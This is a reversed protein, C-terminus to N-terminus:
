FHIVQKTKAYFVAGTQTHIATKTLTLNTTPLYEYIGPPTVAFTSHRCSAMVAFGGTRRVVEFVSSLNSTQLRISADLWFAAPHDKLAELIAFAKVAQYHWKVPTPTSLHSTVPIKSFNFPRLEVNCWRRIEAEQNSTLGWNFYLLKNNPFHEQVSAVADKSELMHNASVGMVFVFKDFVESTVSDLLSSEPIAYQKIFNLDVNFKKSANATASSEPVYQLPYQDMHWKTQDPYHDLMAGELM